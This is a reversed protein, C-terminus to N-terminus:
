KIAVSGTFGSVDHDDDPWRTGPPRIVMMLMQTKELPSFDRAGLGDVGQGDHHCLGFVHGAEHTVTPGSSDNVTRYEVTAGIINSDFVNWTTQSIGSINENLKVTVLVTAGTPPTASAGVVRASIQGGVANVMAQEYAQKHAAIVAANGEIDASLVVTVSPYALKFLARGNAYYPNGARASQDCYVMQKIYINDPGAGATPWLAFLERSGNYVTAYPLYGSRQFTVDFKNGSGLVTASGTASTTWSGIEPNSSLGTSVTAGSVPVGTIGDVATVSVPQQVTVKVAASARGCELTYTTDATLEPTQQSGSTGEWGTRAGDRRVECFWFFGTASWAITVKSKWAVSCTYKGDCTITVTPTPGGLSPDGLGDICGHALVLVSVPVLVRLVAAACTLAGSLLRRRLLGSRPTEPRRAHLSM